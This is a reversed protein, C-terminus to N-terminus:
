KKEVDWLPKQNIDKLYCYSDQSAVKSSLLCGCGGCSEKGKVFAKESTGNKDYYGCKNSRCIKIRQEALTKKQGTIKNWFGQLIKKRNKWAYQMKELNM